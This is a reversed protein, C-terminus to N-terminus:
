WISKIADILVVIVFLSSIIIIPVHKKKDEEGLQLIKIIFVIIAIGVFVLIITNSYYRIWTAIVRYQEKEIFAFKFLGLSTIVIFMKLGLNIKDKM